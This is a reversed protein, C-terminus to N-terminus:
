AHQIGSASIALDLQTASSARGISTCYDNTTLDAEPALKGATASQVYHEGVALTAGTLVISGGIAIIGAGGDVGATIAVGRVVAKPETDNADALKFENDATDQYVTDGVAITDGYVVDQTRTTITVQVGTIGSVDAM